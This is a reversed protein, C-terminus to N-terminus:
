PTADWLALIRATFEDSPMEHHAPDNFLRELADASEEGGAEALLVEEIANPLAFEAPQGKDRTADLASDFQDAAQQVVRRQFADRLDDVTRFNLLATLVKEYALVQQDAPSGVDSEDELPRMGLKRSWIAVMQEEPPPPDNFMYAPSLLEAMSEVTILVAHECPYQPGHSERLESAARDFVPGETVVEALGKFRYGRRKIVDVFNVEIHPNSRLNEITRPSAIDAFYLHDEDWVALSGKPSLNPRSDPTVTAAYGLGSGAIITRMDDNILGM